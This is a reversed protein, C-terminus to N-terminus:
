PQNHLSLDLTLTLTLAQMLSVRAFARLSNFATLIQSHHTLEQFVCDTGVHDANELYSVIEPYLPASTDDEDIM